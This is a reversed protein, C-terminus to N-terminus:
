SAEVVLMRLLLMKDYMLYAVHDITGNYISSLM